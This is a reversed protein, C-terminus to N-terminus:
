LVYKYSIYAAVATGLVALWALYALIRTRRPVRLGLWLSGWLFPIALLRYREQVIHNGGAVALFLLWCPIQFVLAERDRKRVAHILSAFALPVLLVYLFASGTVALYQWDSWDGRVLGEVRFGITPLPAVIYLLLRPLVFLVAQVPGSPLLLLGISRENWSMGAVFEPNQATVRALLEGFGIPYSGLRAALVPALTLAVAGALVMGVVALIRTATLRRVAVVGLLSATVPILVPPRIIALLGLAMVSVLVAGLSLGPRRRSLLSEAVPLIALLALAMTVTERGTLADFWLVEPIVIVLGLLWDYPKREKRISYGVRVLLCSALLTVLANVLAPIVPNQGFLWFISAYYYVIGTYNLSITDFVRPDFHNEILTRADFYYRQPDYGFSESNPDLMPVWGAYLVFLLVAIKILHVDGLRQLSPDRLRRALRTILALGGVSVAAFLLVTPWLAEQVRLALFGGGIMLLLLLLFSQRELARRRRSFERAQLAVTSM